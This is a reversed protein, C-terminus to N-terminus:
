FFGAGGCKTERMVSGDALESVCLLGIQLACVSLLGVCSGTRHTYPLLLLSAWLTHWGIRTCGPGHRFLFACVDSFVLSPAVRAECPSCRPLGTQLLCDFKASALSFVLIFPFGGTFRLSGNYSSRSGPHRHLFNEMVGLRPKRQYDHPRSSSCEQLHSRERIQELREVRYLNDIPTCDDHRSDVLHWRM